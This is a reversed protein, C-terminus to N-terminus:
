FPFKNIEKCEFFEQQEIVTGDLWTILNDFHILRLDTKRFTFFDFVKRDEYVRLIDRM